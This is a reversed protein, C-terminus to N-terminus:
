RDYHSSTVPFQFLCVNAARATIDILMDNGDEDRRPNATVVAAKAVPSASFMRRQLPHGPSAPASQLPVRHRYSITSAHYNKTISSPLLFDPVSTYSYRSTSLHQQTVATLTSATRAFALQHKGLCVLPRLLTKPEM